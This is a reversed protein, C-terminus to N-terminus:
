ERYGSVVGGGAGVTGPSATDFVLVNAGRDRAETKIKQMLDDPPLGIFNETWTNGNSFTMEFLLRGYSTQPSKRIDINGTYPPASSITVTRRIKAQSVICGTLSSALIVVICFLVVQPTLNRKNKM